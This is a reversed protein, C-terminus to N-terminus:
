EDYPSEEHQVLGDAIHVWTPKSKVWTHDKPPFQEVNDLSCTTVDIEEDSGSNEYFLHTGCIACFGRAGGVSSRFRQPTGKLLMFATKKVTFWTLYPAGSVRRCISCHCNTEYMPNGTIVYRLAGCFCGGEIM